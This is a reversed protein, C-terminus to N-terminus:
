RRAPIASPAHGGPPGPFLRDFLMLLEIDGEVGIAGRLLAAVANETGSAVREFLAKEIQVVCDAPGDKQAVAVDGRVISVFWHDTRQRSRLDFRLTGTIKALLPEHGRQGLEEFFMPIAKAMM